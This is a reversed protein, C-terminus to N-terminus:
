FSRPTPHELGEAIKDAWASIANWDRFDGLPAKIMKVLLMEIINMKSVNLVGHFLAIDRPRIRDAVTQLGAPFRWGKMLEVPDGKGTPGSSFLWVLHRALEDQNTVLFRAAEKRWRGAYVGSGLVIAKYRSVDGVHEVSEVEIELGLQRLTEGIREAIERTAGYKTAYTVLIEVM